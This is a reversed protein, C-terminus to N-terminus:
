CMNCIVLCWLLGPKHLLNFYWVTNLHIWFTHTTTSIKNTCCEGMIVASHVKSEFNPHVENLKWTCNSAFQCKAVLMWHHLRPRLIQSRSRSRSRSWGLCLGLVLGTWDLGLGGRGLDLGKFDSVSVSVSVSVWYKDVRFVYNKWKPYQFRGGVSHKKWAEIKM